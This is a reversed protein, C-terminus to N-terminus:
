ATERLTKELLERAALLAEKIKWETRVGVQNSVGRIISCPIGLSKAALAVAFGEMEELAVDPYRTRRATAEDTTSSSSTVSLMPVGDNELALLDEGWGLSSLSRFNQDSGVGIGHLRVVSCRQASGVPWRASDFTGACGVLYVHSYREQLLARTIAIGAALLGFGCLVQPHPTVLGLLNQELKTPICILPRM